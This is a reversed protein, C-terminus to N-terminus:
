SYPIHRELSCLDTWCFLEVLLILSLFSNCVDWYGVPRAHNKTHYTHRPPAPPSCLMPWHLKVAGSNGAPFATCQLVVIASEFRSLIKMKTAARWSEFKTGMREVIFNSDRPKKKKLWFVGLVHYTISSGLSREL